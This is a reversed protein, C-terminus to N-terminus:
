LTVLGERIAYRTLEVTTRLQLKEKINRKHVEVTTAAIGLNAAIDAARKGEAIQRLIELERPTLVSAPSAAGGEKTEANGWMASTLETCVFRKGAVTAQIANFLESIESSKLVYASAGARFIEEVFMRDSFGSLAVIGVEPFDRRIQKAVDIGNMDPLAIDLVLVDPRCRAVTELTEKGTGVEGVVEFAPNAMLPIKLTDRFMRHDDALVLKLSM